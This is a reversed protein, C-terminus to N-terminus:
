RSGGESNYTTVTQLTTLIFMELEAWSAFYMARGSVIHEVRGSIPQTDGDTQAHLQVVFARQQPLPRAALFGKREAAQTIRDGGEQKASHQTNMLAFIFVCILSTM